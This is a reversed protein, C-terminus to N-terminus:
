SKKGGKGQLIQQRLDTLLPKLNEDLKGTLEVLERADFLGTTYPTNALCYQGFFEDRYVNYFVNFNSATDFDSYDIIIYSGNIIPAPQRPSIFLRFDAVEDALREGYPWELIKKARFISEYQWHGALNNLTDRLKAALVKELSDLSTVIYTVDYYETLGLTVRSLFDKTIKDYVVSFARHENPNRYSFIAYQSGCECLDLGLSFGAHEGPLQQLFPWSKVQEIIKEM